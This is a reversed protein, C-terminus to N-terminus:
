VPPQPHQRLLPRLHRKTRMRFSILSSSPDQSAGPRMSHTESSVTYLINHAQVDSILPHPAWFRTRRIPRSSIDTPPFSSSPLFLPPVPAENPSSVPVQGDALTPRAMFSEQSSLTFRSRAQALRTKGKSIRVAM